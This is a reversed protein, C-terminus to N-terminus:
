PILFISDLRLAVLTCLRETQQKQAHIEFGSRETSGRHLQIGRISRMARTTIPLSRIREHEM